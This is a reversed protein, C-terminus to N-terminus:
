RVDAAIIEDRLPHDNGRNVLSFAYFPEDWAPATPDTASAVVDDRDLHQAPGVVHRHQRSRIRARVQKRGALAQYLASLRQTMPGPREMAEPPALPHRSRGGTSRACRRSGPSPGTVFAEDAGYVDYLSFAKEHIPIGNSRCAPHHGRTIGPICYQGTSTWVEGRRVIFFHTSNCTAVFGHPDLMLAEDAGADAAQICRHHLQAQFALQAEPGPCRSLRAACPRHAAEAGRRSRPIPLRTNRSSSSPRRRITVRPDQYPTAKVGRTVMLRIHVGDTM